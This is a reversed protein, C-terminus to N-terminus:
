LAAGIAKLGLLCQQSLSFHEDDDNDNDGDDDDDCLYLSWHDHYIVM